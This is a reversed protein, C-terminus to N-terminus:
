RGVVDGCHRARRHRGTLPCRSRPWRKGGHPLQLGIELKLGEGVYGTLWPHRLLAPDVQDMLTHTPLAVLDARRALIQRAIELHEHPSLTLRKRAGAHECLLRTNEAPVPPPLLGDREVALAGVFQESAIPRMDAGESALPKAGAVQGPHTAQHQMRRWADLISEPRLCSPGLVEQGRLRSCKGASQSTSGEHRGVSHRTAALEPLIRPACQRRAARVSVRSQFLLRMSVTEVHIM